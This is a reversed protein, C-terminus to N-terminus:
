NGANRRKGSQYSALYKAAALIAAAALILGPINKKSLKHFRM